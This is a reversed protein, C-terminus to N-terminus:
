EEKENYQYSVLEDIEKIEELNLEQLFTEFQKEKLKEHVKREQMAHNLKKTALDLENQITSQQLLPHSSSFSCLCFFLTRM